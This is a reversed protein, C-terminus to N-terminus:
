RKKRRERARAAMVAGFNLAWESAWEPDCEESQAALLGMAAAAAYYEELTIELTAPVAPPRPNAFAASRHRHAKWGPTIVKEETVVSHNGQALRAGDNDVVRRAVKAFALVVHPSDIALVHLDHTLALLASRITPSLPSPRTAHSLFTLVRPM